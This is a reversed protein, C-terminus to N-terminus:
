KYVIYKSNSDVDGGIHIKYKKSYYGGHLDWDFAELKIATKDVLKERYLKYFSNYLKMINQGRITNYIRAIEIYDSTKLNSSSKIKASYSYVLRNFEKATIYIGISDDRSPITGGIVTSDKVLNQAM